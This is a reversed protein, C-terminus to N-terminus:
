GMILFYIKKQFVVFRGWVRDFKKEFNSVSLRYESWFCLGCRGVGRLGRCGMRFEL